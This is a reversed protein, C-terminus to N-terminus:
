APKVFALRRNWIARFFEARELFHTQSALHRPDFRVGLRDQRNMLVNNRVIGAQRHGV